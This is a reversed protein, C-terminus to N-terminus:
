FEFKIGSKIMLNTKYCVQQVRTAQNIFKELKTKVTCYSYLTQNDKNNREIKADSLQKDQEYEFESQSKSEDNTSALPAIDYLSM